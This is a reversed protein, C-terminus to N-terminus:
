SSILDYFAVIGKGGIAVRKGDESIAVTGNTVAPPVDDLLPVWTSGWFGFVVAKADGEATPNNM